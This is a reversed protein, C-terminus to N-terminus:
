VDEKVEAWRKFRGKRFDDEGKKISKLFDKDRIIEKTATLEKKVKLYFILDTPEATM